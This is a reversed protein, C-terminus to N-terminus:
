EIEIRGASNIKVKKTDGSDFQLTIEAEEGWEEANIYTKPDPPVFIINLKFSRTYTIGEELQVERIEEDSPQFSYNQNCDAFLIYSKKKTGQELYIGFNHTGCEAEGAGMAMEQVERLDQALQYASRGLALKKEAGTRGLFLVSSLIGIITITMLLEILTFGGGSKRSLPTPTFRPIYFHHPTM